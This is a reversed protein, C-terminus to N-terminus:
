FDGKKIGATKYIENLRDEFRFAKKAKEYGALAIANRETEHKLYYDAKEICEEYSSFTALELGDTFFESLEPQMSSLLFGGCGLVDLARLPIASKAARHSININIKSSKFLIPMQTFYDIKGHIHVNKLIQKEGDNVDPTYLHTDFNKALMVLLVIRDLFTIHEALVFSLERKGIVLDREGQAYQRNFEDIIKDSILEDILYRGLNQRQLAILKELYNMLEPSLGSEIKHLQSRYIRGIFSVDHSYKDSIGFKDYRATNVALPLYHVRRYGLRQFNETDKRDFIFIFSTDYNMEDCPVGAMPTDYSWSIYPICKKHCIRALVPYFNTSVICRFSGSTLRSILKQEFVENHFIDEEGFFYGFEEPVKSGFIDATITMMDLNIYSGTNVFLIKM